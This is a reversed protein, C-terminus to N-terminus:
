GARRTLSELDLVTISRRGIEIWGKRRFSQLANNVGVRSAGAWGALEHQSLPLNIRIGAATGEGFRAALEVLRRAVRGATGRGAEVRKVDADRLRTGLLQLLLRSLGPHSEITAHFDRARVVLAEVTELAVAAASRPRATLVALEGCIDGPGRIALVVENGDDTFCSIKIRGAMVVVVHDAPEGEVFLSSGRSFNRCRGVLRLASLVEPPLGAAHGGSPEGISRLEAGAGGVNVSM